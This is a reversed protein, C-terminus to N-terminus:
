RFPAPDRFVPRINLFIGQIAQYPFIAVAGMGGKRLPFTTMHSSKTAKNKKGIKRRGAGAQGAAAPSVQPSFLLVEL